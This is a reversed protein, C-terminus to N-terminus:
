RSNIASGATPRRRKSVPSKEDAEPTREPAQFILELRQFGPPSPM